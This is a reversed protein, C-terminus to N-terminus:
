PYRHSLASREGTHWIYTQQQNEGQRSPKEGPAGTERMRSFGVNEIEL